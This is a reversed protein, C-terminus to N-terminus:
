SRRLVERGRLNSPNSPELNGADPFESVYTLGLQGSSSEIQRGASFEAGKDFVLQESSQELQGGASFEVVKDLGLQGSFSFQTCNLVFSRM